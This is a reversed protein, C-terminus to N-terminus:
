GSARRRSALSADADERREATAGHGFRQRLLVVVAGGWGVWLAPLGADPVSYALYTWASVAIIWFIPVQQRSGLLPCVYLVPTLYWPHVTSAACSAVIVITAVSRRLGAREGEDTLVTWGAVLAAVGTLAVSAVSGAAKGAFSHLAWKLARYPGAYEDFTGFFLSLSEAAHAFAGPTWLTFSTAFFLTFSVVVGRWRERRWVHPLLALPWLKVLGALTVGVSGWPVRGASVLLLGLGGVVLAETHGQGAIEVVPLPCWAYLGARSAGVARVLAWLGVGEAVLLLSKLAFWGGLGGDGGLRVALQFVQQSVPPYVSFYAPSNMREFAVGDHLSSLRPDNPRLAYPSVGHEVAVAGDWLYRYGDDSLSPTLPFAVLRFVVAGVWLTRATLGVRRVYALSAVFAVTHVACFALRWAWGAEPPRACWAMLAVLGAGVVVAVASRTM